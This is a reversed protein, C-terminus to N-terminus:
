SVILLAALIEAALAVLLLRNGRRARSRFYAVAALLTAVSGLTSFALMAVVKLGPGSAILYRLDVERLAPLMLYVIVGPVLPLHIGITLATWAALTLALPRCPQVPEPPSM